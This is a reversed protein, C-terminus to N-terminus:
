YDEGKLCGNRYLLAASSLVLYKDHDSLERFDDNCHALELVKHVLYIRLNEIDIDIMSDEKILVKLFCLM